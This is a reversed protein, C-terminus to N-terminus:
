CNCTYSSIRDNWGDGVWPVSGLYGVQAGGFNIHEYANLVCGSAVQVSSVQDNWLNGIWPVYAGDEVSRSDGGFYIHEYLTACAGLPAPTAAEEALAFREDVEGAPEEGSPEVEDCAPALLIIACLATIRKSM